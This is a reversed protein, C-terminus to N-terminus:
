ALDLVAALRNRRLRILHMAALFLALYPAFFFFGHHGALFTIPLFHLSRM